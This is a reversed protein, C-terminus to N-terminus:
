NWSVGKHGTWLTNFYAFITHQKECSPFCIIAGKFWGTINKQETKFSYLKKYSWQRKVM